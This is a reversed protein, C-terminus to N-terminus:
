PNPHPSPTPNPLGVRVRVGVGVGLGLGVGYGPFLSSRACVSRRTVSAPPVASVLWVQLRAPASGDECYPDMTAYAQRNAGKGGM